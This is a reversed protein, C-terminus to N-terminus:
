LRGIRNFSDAAQPANPPPAPITRLHQCRSLNQNTPANQTMRFFNSLSLCAQIICPSLKTDQHRGERSTINVFPTASYQIRQGWTGRAPPRHMGHSGPSPRLSVTWLLRLSVSPNVPPKRTTTIVSPQRDITLLFQCLVCPCSKPLMSGQSKLNKRLPTIRVSNGRYQLDQFKM